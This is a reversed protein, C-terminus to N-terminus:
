SKIIFGLFNTMEKLQQENMKLIWGNHHNKLLYDINIFICMCNSSLNIVKNSLLDNTYIEKGNADQCGIFSPEFHKLLYLKEFTKDFHKHDVSYHNICLYELYKCYIYLNKDKKPSSMLYSSTPIYLQNSANLGENTAKMIKFTKSFLNDNIHEIFLFYPNMMVGGYKYLIKAKCYQEWQKLDVGSLRQPDSINCLDKEDEEDLIDKIHTNNFIIVKYNSNSCRQLLSKICVRCIDLNLKKNTRSYFSDWNRQNYDQPLHVFIIPKKINKINKYHEYFYFDIEEEEHKPFLWDYNYVKMQNFFLILIFIVFIIYVLLKLNDM